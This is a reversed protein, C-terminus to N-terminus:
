RGMDEWSDNDLRTEVPETSDKWAIEKEYNDLYSITDRLIESPIVSETYGIALELIDKCEKISRMRYEEEIIANAEALENRKSYFEKATRDIEDKNQLYLNKLFGMTQQMMNPKEKDAEKDAEVITQQSVLMPTLVDSFLYCDEGKKEWLTWARNIEKALKEADILRGHGKPLPTGNRVIEKLQTSIAENHQYPNVLKKYQNDPIDIVIQM